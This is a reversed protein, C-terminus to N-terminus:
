RLIPSSPRRDSLCDPAQYEFPLQPNLNEQHWAAAAQGDEYTGGLAVALEPAVWMAVCETEAEDKHGVLHALEHAVILLGERYSENTPDSPWRWANHCVDIQVEAVTSGWYVFGPKGHFDTAETWVRRCNVTLESRWSVDQIAENLRREYIRAQFEHAVAAVVVGAILFTLLRGWIPKRHRRRTLRHMTASPGTWGPEALDQEAM